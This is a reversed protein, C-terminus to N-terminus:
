IKSKMPFYNKKWWLSLPMICYTVHGLEDVREKFVRVRSWHPFRQGSLRYLKRRREEIKQGGDQGHTEEQSCVGQRVDGAEVAPDDWLGFCNRGTALFCFSTVTPKQIGSKLIRRIPTGVRPEDELRNDFKQYRLQTTMFNISPVWTVRGRSSDRTLLVKIIM